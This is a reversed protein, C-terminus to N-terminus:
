LSTRRSRRVPRHRAQERSWLKLAWSETLKYGGRKYEKVAKEVAVEVSLGKEVRKRISHVILAHTDDQALKGRPRTFVVKRPGKCVPDILDALRHCVEDLLAERLKIEPLLVYPAPRKRSRLLDALAKRSEREEERTLYRIPM